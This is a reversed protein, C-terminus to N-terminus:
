KGPQLTVNEQVAVGRKRNQRIDVQTAVIFSGQRRPQYVPKANFSPSQSMRGLALCETITRVVIRTLAM